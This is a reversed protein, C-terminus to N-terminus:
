FNYTLGVKFRGTTASNDVDFKTNGIKVENINIWSNTYSFDLGLKASLAYFAGVGLGFGAGSSESFSNEQAFGVISGRVYPRFKNEITRFMWQGGIDFHSLPYSDGNKPSIASGDFQLFLGFNSNFNYGLKLALGSGSEIDSDEVSWATGMLSLNATFGKNDYTQASIDVSSTLGIVMLITLLSLIKKM